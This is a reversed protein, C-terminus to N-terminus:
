VTTGVPRIMADDIDWGDVLRRYITKHSIPSLFSLEKATLKEGNYDWLSANRRNLVSRLTTTFRCNEPFYGEENNIRDIVLGDKWKGLMDKEFEKFYKWRDCVSIGRGGYNHFDPRKPNYCRAIMNDWVSYFKSDSQGHYNKKHIWAGCSRTKGPLLMHSAVVKNVGCECLCLWMRRGKIVSHLSIVKLLGFVMGSKDKSNTHPKRM